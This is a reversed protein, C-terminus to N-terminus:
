NAGRGRRRLGLRRGRLGARGPHGKSILGRPNPVADQHGNRYFICCTILTCCLEFSLAGAKSVNSVLLLGPYYALIAVLADDRSEQYFVGDVLEMFIDPDEELRPDLARCPDEPQPSPSNFEKVAKRLEQKQFLM